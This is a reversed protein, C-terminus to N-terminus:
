LETIDEDCCFHIQINQALLVEGLGTTGLFNRVTDEEESTMKYVEMDFNNEIVVMLAM